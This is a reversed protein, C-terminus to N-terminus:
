KFHIIFFNIFEAKTPYSSNLLDRLTNGWRREAETTLVKSIQKIRWIRSLRIWENSLIEFIVLTLSTPLFYWNRTFKTISQNAKLHKNSVTMFFPHLLFSEITFRMGSDRQCGESFFQLLNIYGTIFLCM